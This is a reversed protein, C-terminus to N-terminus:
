EDLDRLAADIREDYSADGTKGAPPLPAQTGQGITLKELAACVRFFADDDPLKSSRLAVVRQRERVHCTYWGGRRPGERQVGLVDGSRLVIVAGGFEGLPLSVESDGLIVVPRRVFRVYAIAGAYLLSAVGVICLVLSASDADLRGLPFVYTPGDVSRSWSIFGLGGGTFMVLMLAFRRFGFRIEEQKM